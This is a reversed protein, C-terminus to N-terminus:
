VDCEGEEIIQDGLIRIKKKKLRENVCDSFLAYVLATLPVALIMGALGMMDGLVFISLLVWIGPLGISTGVIKPYIIQAELNSLIQFIICFWIATVPELAFILVFDIFMAFIPGFVPVISCVTIIASSLEPLPFNLLKFVIYFMAGKIACDVLQGGVFKTFIFNARKGIAFLRESMELSCFSAIVKRIQYVFKEKEALLYISLCFSLFWDLFTNTFAIANSVIGDTLGGLLVLSRDFIDNWSMSKLEAIIRIDELRFDMKLRRFIDNVTNISMKIFTGFNNIVMEISEAVRPIIVIMLVYLLILAFVLTIVISAARIFRYFFHKEPIVKKFQREIKRMPINLIFAMAIALFLPFLLALIYSVTDLVARFNLMFVGFLIIYTWLLIQNKNQRIFERM